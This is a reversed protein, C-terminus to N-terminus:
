PVILPLAISLDIHDVVVDLVLLLTVACVWVVVCKTSAESCAAKVIALVAQPLRHQKISHRFCSHRELRLKNYVICFIFISNGVINYEERSARREARRKTRDLKKYRM